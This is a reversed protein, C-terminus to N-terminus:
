MQLVNLFPTYFLNHSSRHSLVCRYSWLFHVKEPDGSSLACYLSTCLTLQANLGEVKYLKGSSFSTKLFTTVNGDEEVSNDACTRM